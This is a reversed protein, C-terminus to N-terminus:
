RPSSSSRRCCRSPSSSVSSRHGDARRLRLEFGRRRLGAGERLRREALRVRGQRGAGAAGPQPSPSRCRRHRFLGFWCQGTRVSAAQQELVALRHRHPLGIGFLGFLALTWLAVAFLSLALLWALVDPDLWGAVITGLWGALAHNALTAVLIGWAIPWFRRYRAALLLALLQTKDGIEAIAVAFTSVLFTDMLYEICPGSASVRHNGLCRDPRVADLCGATEDSTCGRRWPRHVLHTSMAVAATL